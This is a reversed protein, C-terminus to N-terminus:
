FQLTDGLSGGPLNYADCIKMATLILQSFSWSSSSAPKSPRHVKIPHRRAKKRYGNIPITSSALTPQLYPSM